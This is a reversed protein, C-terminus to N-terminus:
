PAPRLWGAVFALYRVEYMAVLARAVAQTHGPVCSVGILVHEEYGLRPPHMVAVISIIGKGILRQLRNRVTGESVSLQRAIETNSQRGNQRLCTIIRRDLDDVDEM